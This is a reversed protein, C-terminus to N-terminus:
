ENKVEECSKTLCDKNLLRIDAKFIKETSEDLNVMKFDRLNIKNEEANLM